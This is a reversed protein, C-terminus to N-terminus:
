ACAYIFKVYIVSIALWQSACCLRVNISSSNVQAKYPKSCVLTVRFEFSVRIYLNGLIIVRETDQNESNDTEYDVM